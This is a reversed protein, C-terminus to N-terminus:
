KSLFALLAANVKRSVKIACAADLCRHARTCSIGSSANIGYNVLAEPLDLKRTNRM